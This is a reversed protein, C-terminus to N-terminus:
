PELCKSRASAKEKQNIKSLLQKTKIDRDLIYQKFVESNLIFFVKGPNVEHTILNKQVLSTLAFVRDLSSIAKVQNRLEIHRMWKPYAELLFGMIQGEAEEVTRM